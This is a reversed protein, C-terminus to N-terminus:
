IFVSHQEGRQCFFKARHAHVEVLNRSGYVRLTLHMWFLDDNGEVVDQRHGPDDAEFHAVQGLTARAPTPVDSHHLKPTEADGQGLPSRPQLKLELILM